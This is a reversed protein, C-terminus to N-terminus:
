FSPYTSTSVVVYFERFHIHPLTDIEAVKIVRWLYSSKQLQTQSKYTPIAEIHAM